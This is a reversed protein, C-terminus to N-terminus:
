GGFSFTTPEVGAARVMRKEPKRQLVDILDVMKLSDVKEMWNLILTQFHISDGQFGSCFGSCGAQITSIPPKPREPRANKHKPTFGYPKVTLFVVEFLLSMFTQVDVQEEAV